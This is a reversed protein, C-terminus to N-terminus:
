KRFGRFAFGSGGLLNSNGWGKVGVYAWYSGRCNRMSDRSFPSCTDPVELYNRFGLNHLLKM